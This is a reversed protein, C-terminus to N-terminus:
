YTGSHVSIHVLRGIILGTEDMTLPSMLSWAKPRNNLGFGSKLEQSIWRVKFSLISLSVLSGADPTNIPWLTRWPGLHRGHERTHVWLQHYGTHVSYPMTGLGLSGICPWQVMVIHGDCEARCLWGIHSLKYACLSIVDSRYMWDSSGLIVSVKYGSVM